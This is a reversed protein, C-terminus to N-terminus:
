STALQKQAAQGALIARAYESLMRPTWIAPSNWNVIKAFKEAGGAELAKAVTSSCNKGAASYMLSSGRWRMWWFKIAREDLGDIKFTSSPPGELKLDQEFKMSEAFTPVRGDLDGPWWSIYIGAPPIGGVELSSHGWGGGHKKATNWIRLVVM